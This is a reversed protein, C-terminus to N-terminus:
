PSLGASSFGRTNPIPSADGVWLGEYICHGLHESFHGYINRNITTKGDDARIVLKSSTTEAAQIGYSGVTSVTLCALLLASIKSNMSKGVKSKAQSYM